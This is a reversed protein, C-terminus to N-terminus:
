PAQGLAGVQGLGTSEQVHRAWVHSRRRRVRAESVGRGGRVHMGRRYHWWWDGAPQGGAGHCGTSEPGCRQGVGRMDGLRLQLKNGRGLVISSLTHAADVDRPAQTVSM